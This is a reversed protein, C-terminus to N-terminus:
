VDGSVTTLSTSVLMQSPVSNRYIPCPRPSPSLTPPHHLPSCGLPDFLNCLIDVCAFVPPNFFPSTFLKTSLPCNLTTFSLPSDRCQNTTTTDWCTRTSFPTLTWTLLHVVSLLASTTLSPGKVYIYIFVCWICSSVMKEVEILKVDRLWHGCLWVCVCACVGM